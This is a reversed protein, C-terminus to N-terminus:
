TEARHTMRFPMSPQLVSLRGSNVTILLLDFWLEIFLEKGCLTQTLELINPQSTPPLFFRTPYIELLVFVLPQPFAAIPNCFLSASEPEDIPWLVFCLLTISSRSM